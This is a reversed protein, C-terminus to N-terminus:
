LIHNRNGCFLIICHVYIHNRNDYILIIRLYTVIEMFFFLIYIRNRNDYFLISRIYYAQTQGRLSYHTSIGITVIAM